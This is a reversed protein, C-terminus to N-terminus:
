HGSTSVRFQGVVERLEEALTALQRSSAAVEGAQGATTTTVQNIAVINANIEGAVQSQQGAAQAIQANMDSIRAVSDIIEQLVEGAHSADSVGATAQEQSDNMVQVANRAEGQLREIMGQIEQTASHTSNALTRVEDAVVAFGRGQEGARAAEIAANLALLNTQEAIGSIVEVVRGIDNSDSELRQIVEAARHVEDALTQIRGIARQVVEGGDMAKDNTERTADSALAANEAVERTNQEMETMATAALESQEQQQRVGQNSAETIQSLRHSADALRGTTAGTQHIIQSFKEMMGNIARALCGLEDQRELPIRIGLDSTEEIERLKSTTLSLPAIVLRRLILSIAILGLILLGSNIGLNTWLKALIHRDLDHLSYDVRVAGLVTGEPAAHCTLCNTGRMEKSARLPNVVTLIRGQEGNRIEIVSEGNLARRDLEDAVQNSPLGDGFVRRIEQGRVIRADLVQDQSTLKGRAIERNAMGGTMMLTNVNDFYSSALSTAQAEVLREVLDRQTFYQYASTSVLILLFLLSLAIDVRAGISRFRTPGTAQRPM